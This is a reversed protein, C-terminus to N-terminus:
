KEPSAAAVASTTPAAARAGVLVLAPAPEEFLLELVPDPVYPVTATVSCGASWVTVTPWCASYLTTAV